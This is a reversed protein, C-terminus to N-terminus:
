DTGDMYKHKSIVVIPPTGSGMFDGAYYFRYYDNTLYAPFGTTDIGAYANNNFDVELRWDNAAPNSKTGVYVCAHTNGAQCAVAIELSYPLSDHYITNQNNVAIQQVSYKSSGMYGWGSTYPCLCLYDPHLPWDNNSDLVKIVVLRGWDTGIQGTSWFNNQNLIEKIKDKTFYEYWLQKTCTKIDTNWKYKFDCICVGDDNPTGYKSCSGANTGNRSYECNPGKIDNDGDNESCYCGYEATKANNVQKQRWITKVKCVQGTYGDSGQVCSEGLDKCITILDEENPLYINPQTDARCVLDKVTTGTYGYKLDEVGKYQKDCSDVNCLKPDIDKATVTTTIYNQATDWDHGTTLWLNGGKDQGVLYQKTKSTNEMKLPYISPLEWVCQNPSCISKKNNEDDLCHTKKPDCTVNGFECKIKCSCNGAADIIPTEDDNCCVGDCCDNKCCTKKSSDTSVSCYRNDKCCTNNDQCKEGAACCTGNCIVQGTPCDVCTNNQCTQNSPCCKVSSGDASPCYHVALDCTTNDSMCKFYTPDYCTEGCRQNSSGCKDLCKGGILDQNSSCSQTASTNVNLVFFVFYIVLGIVVLAMIFFPNTIIEVPTM